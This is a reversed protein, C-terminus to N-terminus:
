VQMEPLLFQLSQIRVPQLGQQAVRVSPTQNTADKDSESSSTQSTADKDSESSSTQNTADKDAESQRSPPHSSPPGVAPSASDSTGPYGALTESTTAQTITATSTQGFSSLRSVSQNGGRQLDSFDACM